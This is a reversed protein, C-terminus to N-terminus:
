YRGVYVGAWVAAFYMFGLVLVPYFVCITWLFGRNTHFWRAYRCVWCRDM